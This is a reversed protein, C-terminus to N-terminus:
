KSTISQNAASQAQADSSAQDVFEELRTGLALREDEYDRRTVLAFAVRCDLLKFLMQALHALAM